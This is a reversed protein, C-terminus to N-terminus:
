LVFLTVIFIGQNGPRYREALMTYLSANLKRRLLHVVKASRDKSLLATNLIEDVEGKNLLMKERVAELLTCSDVLWGLVCSILYQSLGSPM